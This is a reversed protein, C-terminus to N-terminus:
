DSRRWRVASVGFATLTAALFMCGVFPLAPLSAPDIYATTVTNSVQQRTNLASQYGIMADNEYVGPGNTLEVTVSVTGAEGVGLNGLNWTM